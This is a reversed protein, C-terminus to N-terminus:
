VAKNKLVRIAEPQIIRVDAYIDILLTVQGKLRNQTDDSINAFGVDKKIMGAYAEPFNVLYALTNLGEANVGVEDNIFIPCGLLRYEPQGTVVNLQRLLHYNGIGDKLLALKNFTARNMVWVAGAQRTPNMSNLVNMFDDISLVDKTATEKNCLAPANVLGEFQNQAVVGSIITRDLAYGLRRYLVDTAYGVLDIGADNILMQSLEIASGCRRQELKVKDMTFDGKDLNLLDGVFAGKGINTERLIELVGSVPTLKPIMGFLPAVEELKKIIEKSLHTPVLSGTHSSVSIARMEETKKGRIFDSIGRKEQELIVNENMDRKEGEQVKAEAVVETVEVATEKARAELKEITKDLDRIENELESFKTDEESSLARVEKEVTELIQNLEVKKANRKEVLAKINM